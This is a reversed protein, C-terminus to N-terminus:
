GEASLKGATHEADGGSKQAGLVNGKGQISKSCGVQLLVSTLLGPGLGKSHGAPWTSSSALASYLGGLRSAQQETLPRPVCARFAAAQGAVHM